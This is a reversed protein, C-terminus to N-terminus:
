ALIQANSIKAPSLLATQNERSFKIATNKRPLIILFFDSSIELTQKKEPSKSQNSRQTKCSFNHTTKKQPLFFHANINAPYTTRQRAKRNRLLGGASVGVSGDVLWRGAPRGYQRRNIKEAVHLIMHRPLSCGVRCTRKM